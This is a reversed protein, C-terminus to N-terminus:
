YIKLRGNLLKMRKNFESYKTLPLDCFVTRMCLSVKEDLKLHFLRYIDIDM